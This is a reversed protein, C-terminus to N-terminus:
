KARARLKARLWTKLRKFWGHPKTFSSRGEGIHRCAAPQLYAVYGGQAKLRRSIHREREFGAYGGLGQWLSRRIVHPNFSFGYWQDHLHDLRHFRVGALEHLRFSQMQDAVLGIDATDRLCVSVINPDAALLRLAEDLFDTRTFQWDDENHFIFESDVRAYLADVAAHHGLRTSFTMLEGEPCAARFAANTEADGFDNIAITRLTPAGQLSALTQVLLDPRRGITLCHTVLSFDRM